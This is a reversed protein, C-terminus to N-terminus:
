RNGVVPIEAVFRFWGDEYDFAYEAKLGDLVGCVTPLGYGHDWRPMKTSRITNDDIQVPLSTNSVSLFLTDELLLSCRIRRDTQLRECAEIANDLLNALIVVLAEPDLKLGSLDSVQLQMDVSQEAAAQYKQNLVADVIPHHTNVSLIRTSHTKQLAEVYGRAAETQGGELLDRLTQLHHQFEHASKRQARYNKELALISQTQIEMQKHLMATSNGSAENKEQRRLLYLVAVNAIVLVCCTLVASGSSDPSGHFAQYEAVMLLLSLGPFLLSLFLGKGVVFGMADPLRFRRILFAILLHLLKSATLAVYSLLRQWAPDGFSVGILFSVLLCLLGDIAAGLACSLLVIGIRRIYKGPWTLIAWAAAGLVGLLMVLWVPLGLCDCLTLGLWLAWFGGKEWRNGRGLLFSEAGLRLSLFELLIWLSRLGYQMLVQM